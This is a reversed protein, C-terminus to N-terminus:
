RTRGPNTADPWSAATSAESLVPSGARPRPAQNAVHQRHQRYRWRPRARGRRPGRVRVLGYLQYEGCPKSAIHEMSAHGRFRRVSGPRPDVRGPDLRRREDRRSSRTRAGTRFAERTSRRVASRPRTRATPTSTNVDNQGAPRRVFVIKKGDPSWSPGVCVSRSRTPSLAAAAPSRSRACFRTRGLPRDLCHWEPCPASWLIENGQPSWVGANSTSSSNTAGQPRSRGSADM